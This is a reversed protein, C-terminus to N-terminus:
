CSKGGEIQQRIYESASVYFNGCHECRFSGMNEVESTKGCHHCRIKIKM